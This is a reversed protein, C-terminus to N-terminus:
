PAAFEQELMQGVHVRVEQGGTCQFGREPALHRRRQSVLAGPGAVLPERHQHGATGCEIPYQPTCYCILIANLTKATRAGGTKDCVASLNMVDGSNSGILSIHRGIKYNVGTTIARADIM